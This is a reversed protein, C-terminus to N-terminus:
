PSLRDRPLREAPFGIRWNESARRQGRFMPLVVYGPLNENPTFELGYGAIFEASPFGQRTMGINMQTCRPRTTPPNRTWRPDQMFASTMSTPLSSKSISAYMEGGVQLRLPFLRVPSSRLKCRNGFRTAQWVNRTLEPKPDFTDMSVRGAKWSCGSSPDPKQPFARRLTRGGRLHHTPVGPAKRARARPLHNLM